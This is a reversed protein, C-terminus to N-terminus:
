HGSITANDKTPVYLYDPCPVFNEEIVPSVFESLPKGNQLANLLQEDAKCKYYDLDRLHAYEAKTTDFSKRLKGSKIYGMVEDVSCNWRQALQEVTFTQQKEKSMRGRKKKLGRM